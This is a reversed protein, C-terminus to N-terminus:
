KLKPFAWLKPLQGNLASSEDSDSDDSESSLMSHSNRSSEGSNEEGLLYDVLMHVSIPKIKLRGKISGCCKHPMNCTLGSLWIICKCHRCFGRHPRLRWSSSGTFKRKFAGRWDFNTSLNEDGKLLADDVEGVFDSFQSNKQSSINLKGFFISYQTMWLLNDKAAANWAWCVSSATLLSRMDFFRFIHLLVDHPLHVSGPFHGEYQRAKCLRKHAVMAHKFESTVVTKKQKPLAVEAAQVLLYVAAIGSCTEFRDNYRWGGIMSSAGLRLYTMEQVVEICMWRWTLMWVYACALVRILVVKGIDPDWNRAKDAM